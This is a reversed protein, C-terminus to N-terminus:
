RASRNSVIIIFNVQSSSSIIIVPSGNTIRWVGAQGVRRETSHEQWTHQHLRDATVHALPGPTHLHAAHNPPDLPALCGLRTAVNDAGVKCLTLKLHPRRMLTLKLYPQLM